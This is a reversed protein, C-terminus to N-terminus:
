RVAAVGSDSVNVISSRHIRVLREPDLKASIHGIGERLLFSDKGGCEAERLQNPNASRTRPYGLLHMWRATDFDIECIVTYM